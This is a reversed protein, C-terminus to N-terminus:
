RSQLFIAAVGHATTIILRYNKQLVLPLSPPVADYRICMCNQQYQQHPTRGTKTTEQRIFASVM